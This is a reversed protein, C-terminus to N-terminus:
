NVTSNPFIGAHKEWLRKRKKKKKLKHLNESEDAQSSKLFNEVASQDPWDRCETFNFRM